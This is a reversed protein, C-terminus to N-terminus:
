AGGRNKASQAVLVRTDGSLDKIFSVNEFYKASEEGVDNEQEPSLELLLAGDPKLIGGSERILKRIAVLGDEGGDLAAFSEFLRIEPQLDGIQSTPIYPPNSIIFDARLGGDMDRDGYLTRFPGLLDGRVFHMREAVGNRVANLKALGPDIIDSAYATAGPILKLASVAIVGSGTGIDLIVPSATGSRSKSCALDVLKEVLVETEPRPIFVPAEVLFDIGLFNVRGTLYQGPEHKGRRIILEMVAQVQDNRVEDQCGTYLAARDM